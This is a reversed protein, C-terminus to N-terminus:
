KKTLEDWTEGNWCFVQNKNVKLLVGSQLVFEGDRCKIRLDKGNRLAEKFKQILNVAGSNISPMEFEQKKM